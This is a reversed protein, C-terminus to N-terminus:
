SNGDLENPSPKLRLPPPMAARNTLWKEHAARNLQSLAPEEELLLRLIRRLDPVQGPRYLREYIARVLEFDEPYDLDLRVEPHRLLPDSPELMVTRFLGTETFYREWGDTYEGAKIELVRRLGSARVGFPATGFPLDAITIFDARSRQYEAVVADVFEGECFVDDGGVVALFEVSFQEAVDALRQVVDNVAGRFTKMGAARAVACLSEDQPLTTTALVLPRASRSLKLRDLQHALVPRGCVELLSKNPLRTSGTRALLALGAGVEGM